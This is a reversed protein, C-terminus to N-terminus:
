SRCQSCTNLFWLTIILSLISITIGIILMIKKTRQHLGKKKAGLTAAGAGVFAMPISLCAGCFDEKTEQKEDKQTM